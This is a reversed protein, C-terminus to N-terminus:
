QVTFEATMGKFAHPTGEPDDTDPLFCVLAYRGASLEPIAMDAEDGENFPFKFAVFEVGSEESQLVDLVEGDAPLKLLQVEHSQEGENKVEFAFSGSTLHEDAADFAFAFDNLELSVTEIGDPIEDSAASLGSLRWVEDERVADVNFSAEDAVLVVTAKDGDIDVDDIDVRPNTLPDGICEEADAACAELSETGFVQVFGDTIHDMYFDIEAQDAAFGDVSALREVLDALEQREEESAGDDCAAGIALVTTAMAVAILTARVTTWRWSGISLGM